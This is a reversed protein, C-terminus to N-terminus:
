VLGGCDAATLVLQYEVLVTHVGGAKMNRSVTINICVCKILVVKICVKYAGGKYM